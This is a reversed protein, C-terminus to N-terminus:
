CGERDCAKSALVDIVGEVDTPCLLYAGLEKVEVMINERRRALYDEMRQIIVRDTPKWAHVADSNRIWWRPTWKWKGGGGNTARRTTSRAVDAQNAFTHRKTSAADQKANGRTCSQVAPKAAHAKEQNSRACDKSAVKGFEDEGEQDAECLSLSFLFRLCQFRSCCVCLCSLTQDSVCSSVCESVDCFSGVNAVESDSDVDFCVGCSYPCPFTIM